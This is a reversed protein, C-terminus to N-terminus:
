HPTVQKYNGLIWNKLDSKYWKSTRKDSPGGALCTHLIDDGMDAVLRISPAFSTQRGVSEYIQGQHPTARGGLLPIPRTDFGLFAPLKGQFLMNTFVLKNQEGWTNGQYLKRAKNFAKKFADQQSQQHYWPSDANLMARDFNQYFDIFIGTKNILHHIVEDSFGQKGFVEVRLAQYFLEFLPAGKSELGYGFDWEKLLTAEPSNDLLPLLIDLFLEAQKSHVDFQFKEMDKVTHKTGAALLDEIRKARYDGMPMNIPNTNGLHNLDQNATVIYGEEPNYSRPLDTPDVMGQWDYNEDWGPAPAFGNWEPHRKPMLGSMQYAINGQNDSIVWNWASEIDGLHKMAEKANAADMLKMGATISQAGCQAPSWRTALYLGKEYPNGELVGHLNEYFTVEVDPNKKRKITETRKEFPVWQDGRRYRGNECDEIWSDVTDMFTYTTGWAIQHSRGVLISPLGPMGMGMMYKGEWRVVQEYWVNPLRNVELHPDNAMIANGSLTRSGAVVWNNSAMMRPIASNWRVSDPVIREGLKVQKILDSDLNNTCGPFLSELLESSMDAQVMEVFLREIEAQSQALTLYSAMRLILISDAIQWPEPTYGLLKLAWNKEAALGANLGNCYAQCADRTTTDLQNIQEQINGNWNASKFFRDIELSEDNDALCECLRGQGLLRMMLLQTNRDIAHCYGMGWAVDQLNNATIHPVGSSDRTINLGRPKAGKIKINTTAGM